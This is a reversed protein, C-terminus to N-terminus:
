QQYGTVLGTSDRKLKITTANLCFYGGIPSAGGIGQVTVTPPLANTDNVRVKALFCNSYKVVDEAIETFLQATPTKTAEAIFSLRLKIYEVAQENKGYFEYGEKFIQDVYKDVGQRIYSDANYGTQIESLDFEPDEFDKSTVDGLRIGVRKVATEAPDRSTSSADTIDDYNFLKKALWIKFKGM